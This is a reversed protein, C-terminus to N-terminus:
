APPQRVGLLDIGLIRQVDFKCDAAIVSRPMVKDRRCAAMENLAAPSTFLRGAINAVALQGHKAATRLTSVTLLGDPWFLVAAETLTLLEHRAWLAPHPRQMVRVPVPRPKSRVEGTFVTDDTADVAKSHGGIDQKHEM